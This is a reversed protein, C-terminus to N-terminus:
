SWFGAPSCKSYDKFVNQNFLFSVNIETHIPAAAVLLSSFWVLGLISFIVFKLLLVCGSSLLYYHLSVVTIFVGLTKRCDYLLFVSFCIGGSSCKPRWLVVFSPSSLGSSMVRALCIVRTLWIGSLDVYKEWKSISFSQLKNASLYCWMSGFLSSCYRSSLLSMLEAGKSPTIHQDEVGRSTGM